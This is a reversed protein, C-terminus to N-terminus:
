AVSRDPDPAVLRGLERSLWDPTVRRMAALEHREETSLKEELAQIAEDAHEPGLWLLARAASAAKGRRVQWAPAHRLEVRRPGISLMRSKGSTLFVERVPVQTTLGLANAAAAGSPVIEEGTREMIANIVSETSPSRTGFRSKVPKSYLGHGVRVLQGRRVLRSLAQDVSARPGLHLFEKASVLEGEPQSQAQKLIASALPGPKRRRTPKSNGPQTTMHTTIM